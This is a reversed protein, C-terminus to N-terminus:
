YFAHSNDTVKKTSLRDWMKYYAWATYLLVIPVFILAVYFMVNLTLYSSTANWITLSQHANVSSPLIFPFLSIAYTTFLAIVGVSSAVFACGNKDNKAARASFLYLVVALVPVVFLVPNSLYNAYWSATAVVDGEKSALILSDNVLQYGPLFALVVATLVALVSVVLSLVVAAKQARAYIASTRDVRLTVWNAGQVLVVSLALLGVLLGFPNLLKLLNLLWFTGQGYFSRGIEDFQFPLGLLVNGLAVGVVLPPVFGSLFLSWDVGRRHTEIDFKSRYELGVPRFFLAFLILVMGLYLGSFSTAYVEPWAAFIAGGGLLLWVQNGDWHPAITNIVVRREEDTKSIFPNLALAGLDFGDFIVFGSLLVIVLVWWIVQLVEFSLM